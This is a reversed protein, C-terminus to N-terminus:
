RLTANSRLDIPYFRGALLERLRVHLTPVAPSAGSL